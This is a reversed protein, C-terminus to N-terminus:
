TIVAAVATASVLFTTLSCHAQNLFASSATWKFCDLNFLALTKLSMTVYLCQLEDTLSRIKLSTCRSFFIYPKIRFFINEASRPCGPCNGPCRSRAQTNMPQLYDLLNQLLQYDGFSLELHHHLLHRWSSPSVPGVCSETLTPTQHAVLSGSLERAGGTCM